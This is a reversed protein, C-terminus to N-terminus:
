EGFTPGERVDDPVAPSKDRCDCLWDNSYYGADVWRGFSSHPWQHPCRTLGHKVPNYHITNVHRMFDEEDRIKHERFRKQWVGRERRQGSNRV